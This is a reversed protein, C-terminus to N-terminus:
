LWLWWQRVSWEAMLATDQSQCTTVMIGVTVMLAVGAEQTAGAGAEAEAGVEAGVTAGPTDLLIVVVEAEAGAGAEEAAEEELPVAITSSEKAV